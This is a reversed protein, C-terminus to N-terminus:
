FAVLLFHLDLRGALENGAPVVLFVRFAGDPQRQVSTMAATAGDASVIAATAPNGPFRVDYAPLSTAHKVEVGKGACNYKFGFVSASSTYKDGINQIGTKGGTVLVTGKVTGNACPKTAKAGGGTALASGGLAFFLAALSLVLPAGVVAGIRFRRM